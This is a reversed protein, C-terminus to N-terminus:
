RHYNINLVNVSVMSERDYSKFTITLISYSYQSKFRGGPAFPSHVKTSTTSDVAGNMQKHLYLVTTVVVGFLLEWHSRTRADQDNINDSFNGKSVQELNFCTNSRMVEM